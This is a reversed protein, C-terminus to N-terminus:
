ESRGFSASIRRLDDFGQVIIIWIGAIGLLKGKGFAVEEVNDTSLVVIIPVFGAVRQYGVSATENRDGVEFDDALCFSLARARGRRSCAVGDGEVVGAVGFLWGVSALFGGSSRSAM